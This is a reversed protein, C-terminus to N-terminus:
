KEKHKLKHEYRYYSLGEIIRKPYLEHVKDWAKTLLIESDIFAKAARQHNNIAVYTHALKEMAYHKIFAYDIVSTTKYEKRKM